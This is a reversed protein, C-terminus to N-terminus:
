SSRFPRCPGASPHSLPEAMENGGSMCVCRTSFRHVLQGVKATVRIRALGKEQRSSRRGMRVIGGM